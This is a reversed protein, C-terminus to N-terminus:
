PFFINRTYVKTSSRFLKGPSCFMLFVVVCFRFIGTFLSLFVLNLLWEGVGGRVWTLAGLLRVGFVVDCCWMVCLM